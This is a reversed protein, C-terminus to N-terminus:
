KKETGGLIWLDEVRHWPMFQQEGNGPYTIYFGRANPDPRKEVLAEIEDGKKTIIKIRVMGIEQFIDTKELLLEAIFESLTKNGRMRQHHKCLTWLNYFSTEGGHQKLIIHGVRWEEPNQCVICRKGERQVVRRRIRVPIYSPELSLPRNKMIPGGFRHSPRRNDGVQRMFVFIGVGVLMILQCITRTWQCFEPGVM